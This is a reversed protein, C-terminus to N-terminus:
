QKAWANSTSELVRELSKQALIASRRPSRVASPKERNTLIVSLTMLTGSPSKKKSKTRCRVSHSLLALCALSPSHQEILLRCVCKRVTDTYNYRTVLSIQGVNKPFYVQSKDLSKKTSARLRTIDVWARLGVKLVLHEKHLLDPWASHNTAVSHGVDHEM